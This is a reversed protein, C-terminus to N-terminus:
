GWTRWRQKPLRDAERGAVDLNELLVIAENMIMVMRELWGTEMVREDEEVIEQIWDGM